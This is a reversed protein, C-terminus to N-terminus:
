WKHHIKVRVGPLYVSSNSSFSAFYKPTLNQENTFEPEEAFKFANIANVDGIDGITGTFREEGNIIYKSGLADCNDEVLWLNYKECFEKVASLDFPNGLTHAIM